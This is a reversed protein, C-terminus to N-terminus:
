REGLQNPITFLTDNPSAIRRISETLHAFGDPSVRLKHQLDFRATKKKKM